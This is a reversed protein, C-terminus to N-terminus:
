MGRGDREEWTSWRFLIQHPICIMLTKMIYDWHRSLLCMRFTSNHCADGLSKSGRSKFIWKRLIMFTVTVNM